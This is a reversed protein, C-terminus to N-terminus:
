VRQVIQELWMREEENLPGRRVSEVNARVWGIQRMSVILRDVHSAFLAYRLMHDALCARNEQGARQILRELQWGRVFPSCALTQWGLAQCAAFAPGADPTTVNYPRVM